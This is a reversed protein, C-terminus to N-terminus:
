YPVTNKNYVSEFVKINDNILSFSFPMTHPALFLPAAAGRTLAVLAFRNM